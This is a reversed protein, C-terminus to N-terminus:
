MLFNSIDRSMVKGVEGGGAKGDCFVGRGGEGHAAAGALCHIM